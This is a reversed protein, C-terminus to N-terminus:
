QNNAKRIARHHAPRSGRRTWCAAAREAENEATTIAQRLGDASLASVTVSAGLLLASIGPRTAYLRGQGATWIRWLPHDARLGPYNTHWRTIGWTRPISRATSVIVRRVPRRFAMGPVHMVNGTITM